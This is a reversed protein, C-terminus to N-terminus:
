GGEIPTHRYEWLRSASCLNPTSIWRDSATRGGDLDWHHIRKNRDARHIGKEEREEYQRLPVFSNRIVDQRQEQQQHTGRIGLLVHGLYHSLAPRGMDKVVGGCRSSRKACFRLCVALIWTANSASLLIFLTHAPFFEAPVGSIALAFCVASALVGWVILRRLATQDRLDLRGLFMGYIVLSFWPFVPHYGNFLLQRMQGSMSWMDEYHTGITGAGWGTTYDFLYTMLQANVLVGVGVVLLWHTRLTVLTLGLLGFLGIYHLIGAEWIPLFALGGILLLLYRRIQLAPWDLGSRHTVRKAQLILGIGFLVLFVGVARGAFGALVVLALAIDIESHAFLASEDHELQAIYTYCFVYMYNVFVMGIVALGRASTNTHGNGDKNALMPAIVDATGFRSGVRDHVLKQRDSYCNIASAGGTRVAALGDTFEYANDFQLPVTIAGTANIYGGKGDKYVPFLPCEDTSSASSACSLVALSLIAYRIAMIGEVEMTAFADGAAGRGAPPQKVPIFFAVISWSLEGPPLESPFIGESLGFSM